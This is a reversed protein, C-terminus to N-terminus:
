KVHEGKKDVSERPLYIVDNDNNESAVFIFTGNFRGNLRDAYRNLKDHKWQAATVLASYARSQLCGKGLSKRMRSLGAETQDLDKKLRKFKDDTLLVRYIKNCRPCKFYTLTFSKDNIKVISEKIGVASLYFEYKCEDCSIRTDKQSM